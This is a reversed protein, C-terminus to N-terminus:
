SASGTREGAPRARMMHISDAITRFADETVALEDPDANEALDLTRMGVINIADRVAILPQEHAGIDAYFQREHQKRDRLAFAIIAAPSEFVRYGREDTWHPLLRRDSWHQVQRRSLGTLRALEVTSLPYRKGLEADPNLVLAQADQDLSRWLGRVLPSRLFRDQRAGEQRRSSVKRKPQEAILRRQEATMRKPALNNAWRAVKLRDEARMAELYPFGDIEKGDYVIGQRDPRLRVAMHETM